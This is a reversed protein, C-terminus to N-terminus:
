QCDKLAQASSVAVNMFALAGEFSDPNIAEANLTDAANDYGAGQLDDSFSAMEKHLEIMRSAYAQHANQEAQAAKDAADWDVDQAAYEADAAKSAAKAALAEKANIQLLHYNM